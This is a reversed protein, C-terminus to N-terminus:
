SDRLVINIQKYIADANREASFENVATRKALNGQRELLGPNEAYYRITKALAAIDGLDYVYGTKGSEVLESNAGSRSVIVPMHMLMFEITVRGFAEDRAAVIGLNMHQLIGWVDDTHGVFHVLEHIGNERTFKQILTSYEDKAAGILWTEVDLNEKHLLVQAKLLEMQNKQECLIGVCAIQLRGSIKNEDKRFVGKPLSVGNYIMEVRENPLLDKYFDVMYNSIVIFKKNVNNHLIRKSESLSLSFALYFQELSERFQWIHPKGLRKAIMYGINVCISNSYVLDIIEGSFLSCLYEIRMWNRLQKLKNLLWQFIGHNDNVWWYYHSVKYPIGIKQLESCMAGEDPLLVISKVEYRKKLLSILSLLSKNAGYYGSYHTVFLITMDAPM